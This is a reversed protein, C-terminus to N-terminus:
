TLEAIEDGQMKDVCLAATSQLKIEHEKLLHLLEGFDCIRKQSSSSSCM